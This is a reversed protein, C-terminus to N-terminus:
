VTELQKSGSPTAALGQQYGVPCLSGGMAAVLLLHTSWFTNWVVVLRESKTPATLAWAM